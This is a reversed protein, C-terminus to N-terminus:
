YVKKFKDSLLKSLCSSVITKGEGKVSSTVLIIKTKEEGKFITYNLNSVLMRFSEVLPVGSVKTDLSMLNVDDENNIYPIEWM